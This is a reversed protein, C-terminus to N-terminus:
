GGVRFAGSRVEGRTGADMTEVATHWRYEGPAVAAPLALRYSAEQGTALTRLEMTCVRDSPVAEWAGGAQRELGSTCLNYGVAAPSDNRVTLVVTDGPAVADPSVGLVVGSGGGGSRAPSCACFLAIALPLLNRM